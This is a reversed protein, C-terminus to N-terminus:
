CKWRTWHVSRYRWEAVHGRPVIWSHPFCKSRKKLHLGWDSANWDQATYMRPLDCRIALREYSTGYFYILQKLFQCHFLPPSPSLSQAQLDMKKIFYALIGLILFRIWFIDRACFVKYMDSFSIDSIGNTGWLCIKSDVIYYYYDTQARICIHFLFRNFSVVSAVHFTFCCEYEGWSLGCFSLVDHTCKV